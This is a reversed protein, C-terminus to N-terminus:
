PSEPDSSVLVRMPGSSINRPPVDNSSRGARRRSRTPTRHHEQSNREQSKSQIDRSKHSRALVKCESSKTIQSHWGKQLLRSPRYTPAAKGSPMRSRLPVRSSESCWKGTLSPKRPFHQRLLRTPASRIVPRDAQGRKSQRGFPTM